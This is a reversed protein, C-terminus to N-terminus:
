APGAVQVMRVRESTCAAEFDAEIEGLAATDRADVTAIGMARNRGQAKAVYLAMDAWNVAQEWHVPLQAPPLPFHAFGVSVTVRLPGDETDVPSGGVTQLIREALLSLQEQGVDPAFVLFEEGGWRVVLDETRVAHALRRAVECIVVDGIGHGHQDNVHKFHDIDVMLLAGSFQAPAAMLAQQQEMVALFHRRNALDTLPDRESQARLLAQSARLRKNADRVRKIMVGVLVLSLGMLVAVAIGLQQGLRRNSLQRDKLDRDRTLLDLDHRERTSDYKLQLQKLSAERNRANAEATLQRELHFLAIAEKPQGASAWAEGLERLENIRQTTDPQGRRLEEVRAIERRAADVQKLQLLAVSINHRLVRESRRDKYRLVVPLAERSLALAHAPDGQHMYYDALNNQERAIFRPADVERALRLSEQLAHLRGPKDGLRSSVMSEFNRAHMQLMKDAGSFSRARQLWEHAEAYNGQDASLVALLGASQSAQEAYGGAEALLLSRKYLAQAATVAGRRDQQVALISMAESLTRFDCARASRLAALDEGQCAPGLLDAVQQAADGAQKIQAQRTAVTARLLAAHAAEGPQGALQEALALAAASDGNELQTRAEAYDLRASPGHAARLEALQKLAQEPQRRGLDVVAQLQAEDPGPAAQAAVAGLLALMTAVFATRM